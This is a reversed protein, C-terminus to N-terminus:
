RIEESIKVLYKAFEEGTCQEPNDALKIINSLNKQKILQNYNAFVEEKIKEDDPDDPLPNYVYFKNIKHAMIKSEGENNILYATDVSGWKYGLGQFLKSSKNDKVILNNIEGENALDKGFGMGENNLALISNIKGQVCVFYCILDGINNIYFVNNAKGEYAVTSGIEKGKNNIYFVNNTEGQDGASKGIKDGNNNIFALLGSTSIDAGVHDGQFNEIILNKCNQSGQFLQDFENGKGDIYYFDLNLKDLLYASYVGLISNGNGIDLNINAHIFNTLDKKDYNLNLSLEELRKYIKKYIKKINNRILIHNYGDDFEHIIMDRVGNLKDIVPGSKPIIIEREDGGLDDLFQQINDKTKVMM